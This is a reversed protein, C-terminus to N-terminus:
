PLANLCLGSGTGDDTGYDQGSLGPHALCSAGQWDSLDGVGVAPGRRRVELVHPGPVLGHQALPRGPRRPLQAEDHEGHQQGGRGHRQQGGDGQEGGVPLSVRAGVVAQRLGADLCRRADEVGQVRRRLGALVEVLEGAAAPEAPVGYWLRLSGPILEPRKPLLEQTVEFVDEFLLAGGVLGAGHLLGLRQVAGAEVCALQLAQSQLRQDGRQLLEVQAGRQGGLPQRVLVLADTAAAPFKVPKVGRRPRLPHQAVGHQQTEPDVFVHPVGAPVQHHHVLDRGAEALAVQQVGLAEAALQGLVPAVDRVDHADEQLAGVLRGGVARGLVEGLVDQAEARLKCPNHCCGLLTAVNFRLEM